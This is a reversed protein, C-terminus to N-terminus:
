ENYDLWQKGGVINIMVQVITQCAFANLYHILIDPPKLILAMAGHWILGFLLSYIIYNRLNLKSLEEKTFYKRIQILYKKM